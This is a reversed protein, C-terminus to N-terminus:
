LINAQVGLCFEAWTPPGRRMRLTLSVENKSQLVPSVVFDFAGGVRGEFLEAPSLGAAMRVRGWDPVFAGYSALGLVQFAEIGASQVTGKVRGVASVIGAGVEWAGKDTPQDPFRYFLPVQGYIRNGELRGTYWHYAVLPITRWDPAMQIVSEATIANLLSSPFGSSKRLVPNQITGFNIGLGLALSKQRWTSPDELTPVGAGGRSSAPTAPAAASGRTPVSLDSGTSPVHPLSVVGRHGAVDAVPASELLPVAAQPPPAEAVFPEYGAPALSLRQHPMLLPQPVVTGMAQSTTGGNGSPDFPGMWVLFGKEEKGLGLSGLAGQNAGHLAVIQAAAAAASASVVRLRLVPIRQFGLMEASLPHNTNRLVVGAELEDGARIGADAGADITVWQGRRSTIRGAHGLNQKIKALAEQFGQQVQGLSPQPQLLLDERLLVSGDALTLAVKLRTSDPELVIWTRLWGDLSYEQTLRGEIADVGGEAAHDQEVVPDRNLVWFRGTASAARRLGHTLERFLSENTLPAGAIGKLLRSQHRMVERFSDMNISVVAIGLRRVAPVQTPASPLASSTTAVDQQSLVSLPSARGAPIGGLIGAFFIIGGWFCRKTIM